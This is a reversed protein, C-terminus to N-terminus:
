QTSQPVPPQRWVSVARAGQALVGLSAPQASRTMSASDPQESGDDTGTEQGAKISKNAITEYAYGSLNAELDLWSCGESLRAWGYHVEGSILFKFGLYRDQKNNWPGRCKYRFNSTNFYGYGLEVGGSTLKTKPGIRHGYLLDTVNKHGVVAIENGAVAPIANIWARYITGGACCSYATFSFDTTGNGTLDLSYYDFPGIQVNAPTYVIEAEGPPVLALVTVGAASAAISYTQLHHRISEPIAALARVSGSKNV